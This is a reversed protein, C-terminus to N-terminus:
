DDRTEKTPFRVIEPEDDDSVRNPLWSIVDTIDIMGVPRGEADLVPLESIQNEALLSIAAPMLSDVEIALPSRTMVDGVPLELSADSQRELLRALDSDTFVGVLKELDDLIMVAGTRRGPRRVTVFTERVTHSENVVRCDSLRRMVDQVKTLKRGLSGGPHFRAFDQARFGRRQSLTLALADGIALM